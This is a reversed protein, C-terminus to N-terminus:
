KVIWIKKCAPCIMETDKGKGRPLVHLRAPCIREGGALAQLKGSCSPCKGGPLVSPALCDPCFEKADKFAEAAPPPVEDPGIFDIGYGCGPCKTWEESPLSFNHGCNPCVLAADEGAAPLDGPSEAIIALAQDAQAHPVLLRIDVAFYGGLGATNNSAADLMLCMIGSSELLSKMLAAQAYQGTTFVVVGPDTGEEM